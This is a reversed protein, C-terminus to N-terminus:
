GAFANWCPLPTRCASSQGSSVHIVTESPELHRMSFSRRIAITQIATMELLGERGRTTGFGSLRRGGFLVRPDATPVILDNVLVSGVDLKSALLRADVESGFISCCLGFPCMREASLIGDTGAVDMVSLVPAFIDSQAIMMDPSAHDILVPGTTEAELETVVVAGRQRAAELLASLETRINESLM